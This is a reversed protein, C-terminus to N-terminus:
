KIMVGKKELLPVAICNSEQITEPLFLYRKDYMMDDLQFSVWYENTLGFTFDMIPEIKAYDEAGIEDYFHRLTSTKRPEGNLEGYGTSAVLVNRLPANKLNLLYVNWAIEGDETEDRVVAIAVDEVPPIPIDKKM